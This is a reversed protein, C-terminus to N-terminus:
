LTIPGIYQPFIVILKIKPVIQWIFKDEKSVLWMRVNGINQNINRSWAAPM